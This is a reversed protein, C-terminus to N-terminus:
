RQVSPNYGRAQIGKMVQEMAKESKFPGVLVRQFAKDDITTTEIKVPYSASKLNAALQEANAQSSFSGVRLWSVTSAQQVVASTSPKQTTNDTNAAVSELSIPLLPKSQQSNDTVSAVSQTATQPKVTEGGESLSELALPEIALPQTSNPSTLVVDVPKQTVPQNSQIHIALNPNSLPKPTPNLLAPVFLVGAFVLVAGGILRNRTLQNM